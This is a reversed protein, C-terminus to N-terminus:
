FLEPQKTFVIVDFDKGLFPLISDAIPKLQKDIYHNYNIDTPKLKFPTPGELTIVYEVRGSIEGKPDEKLAAKVQPPINKIYEKAPKTLRKKYVLKNDLLGNKLDKVVGKIYSEVEINHFIREFLNFQFDKALETWDSRVFEMGTFKLRDGEKETLLGVYRKKAGELSGRLGPLFFRSFHKEYELELKSEVHFNQLLLDKLFSNAQEVIAMAYHSFNEREKPKLQVFLSDTDGYIVRYGLDEIFEKTKTLIWQGSETIAKSLDPHYFRCGGTGMVGYFSNMLIKIAQSLHEDRSNKAEERKEMLEKIFNPLVHETKSFNIGIPTTIGDIDSRLRSLPDIFFTRIISPYLSKFDLVVVSDYFGPEETFVLGGSGIDNHIIDDLDPAVLGKRHIMPLMFYDFAAVSMGIRDMTLGCTIARVFILDILKLKKFIDTVLTCDLLNYYALAPKDEIFRREIEDVKGDGSSIDKGIGLVAQAVNELKYSEFSYFAGRLTPPGDIIIRGEINCIWGKNNTQKIYPVSSNRGINFTINHYECRRELFLLDFGIVHWGIIIDPDLKKINKIFEKLLEKESTIYTVYDHNSNELSRMLVRKYENEGKTLHFGISYVSGDRGTEIDMSLVKFEPKYSDPKIKPNCFYDIGNKLYSSGEISISGTIFREMLYREEPFVDSEFCTSGREKLIQKVQILDRSNKFYVADM